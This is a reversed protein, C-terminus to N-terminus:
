PRELAGLDPAAPRPQGELDFPYTYHPDSQGLAPSGAGLHYDRNSRSVFLPDASINDGLGSWVGAGDSFDLINHPTTNGTMPGSTDWALNTFARNTSAPPDQGSEYLGKLEEGGSFAVINNRMLVGSCNNEVYIGRQAGIDVVTNNVVIINCTKVADTDARIQIGFGNPDRYVLNNAVLGSDAQIYLCQRQTSGDGWDHCRNGVLNVRLAGPGVLFPTIDHNAGAFELGLLDVDHAGGVGSVYFAQHGTGTWLAPTAEVKFNRFRLFSAGGSVKFIESGGTAASHFVAGSGYGEFTIAAASTGSRGLGSAPEWRLNVAYTGNLAEIRQGPLAQNIGTQAACPAAQSCTSGTGSPSVFLQGGPSPALLPPM